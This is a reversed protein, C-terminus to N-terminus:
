GGRGFISAIFSKRRGVKQVNEAKKDMSGNGTLIAPLPPSDSESMPPTTMQEPHTPLQNGSKLNRLSKTSQRRKTKPATQSLNTKLNTNDRTTEKELDDIQGAVTKGNTALNEEAIATFRILGREPDPGLSEEM